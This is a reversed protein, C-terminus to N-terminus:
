CELTCDDDAELSFLLNSNNCGFIEKHDTLVRKLNRQYENRFYSAKNLNTGVNQFVTLEDETLISLLKDATPNKIAITRNSLDQM